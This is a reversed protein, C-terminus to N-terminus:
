ISCYRWWEKRHWSEQKVTDKLSNLYFTNGKNSKKCQRWNYFVHKLCYVLMTYGWNHYTGKNTIWILKSKRSLIDGDDNSKYRYELRIKWGSLPFWKIIPFTFLYKNEDKKYIEVNARRQFTGFPADNNNIWKIVEDMDRIYKKSYLEGVYNWFVGMKRSLCKADSCIYVMKKSPIGNPNTVHEDLTEVRIMKWEKLLCKCKPCKIENM